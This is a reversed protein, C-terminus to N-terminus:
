VRQKRTFREAFLGAMTLAAALALPYAIELLESRYNAYYGERTLEVIHLTPNRKLVAIAEPPMSSPIYFVGSLFFLPRPFIKEVHQWAQNKQYIIANITFQM